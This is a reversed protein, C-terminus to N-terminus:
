SAKSKGPFLKGKLANKTAVAFRPDILFEPHAKVAKRIYQLALKHEGCTSANSAVMLDSSAQMYKKYPAYVASLEPSNAVKDLIYQRREILAFININNMTRGSHEVIASNVKAICGLAKFRALVRIWFDWDESGTLEPKEDFRVDGLGERHVFVGICALFNGTTISKLNNTMPKGHYQSVVENRENVIQFLNHFFRTEPHQQSYDYADQLNSPYMLDDSDLFTVFKGRANNIGTNRSKAREYNIDHEFLRIKGTTVLPQLVEVTNDTSCNDVVLVEYDTFTQAWISDLTKHIIGARNYAPIVISFYPTASAM